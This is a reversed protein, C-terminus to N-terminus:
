ALLQEIDTFHKERTIDSATRHDDSKLHREAGHRLLEGVMAPDPFKVAAIIQHLPDM